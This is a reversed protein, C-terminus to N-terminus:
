GKPMETYPVEKLQKKEQQMKTMREMFDSASVTKEDKKEEEKQKGCATLSLLLALLVIIKKM